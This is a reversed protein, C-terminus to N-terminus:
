RRGRKAKEARLEKAVAELAELCTQKLNLGHDRAKDLLAKDIRFVADRTSVKPQIPKTVAKEIASRCVESVNVNHDQLYDLLATPAEIATTTKSGKLFKSDIMRKSQM